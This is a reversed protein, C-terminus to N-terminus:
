NQALSGQFRPCALHEATFCGPLALMRFCSCFLRRSWSWGDSHRSNVALGLRSCVVSEQGAQVLEKRSRSQAWSPLPGLSSLGVAVLGIWGFGPVAAEKAALV